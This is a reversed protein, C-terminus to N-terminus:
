KLLLIDDTLQNSKMKEEALLHENEDHERQLANIMENLRHIEEELNTIRFEYDAATEERVRIIEADKRALDALHREMFNKM